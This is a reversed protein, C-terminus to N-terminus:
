EGTRNRKAREENVGSSNDSETVKRKRTGRRQKQEPASKLQEKRQMAEIKRLERELEREEKMMRAEIKRLEKELEQAESRERVEIEKQKKEQKDIIERIVCEDYFTKCKAMLKDIFDENREVRMTFIGKETGIALLYYKRGTVSLQGQIQCYIESKEKLHVGEDDVFFNKSM